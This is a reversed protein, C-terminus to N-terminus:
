LNDDDAPKQEWFPRYQGPIGFWSVWSTEVEPTETLDSLVSLPLPRVPARYTPMTVTDLGCGVGLALVTGIQERCRRGQCLGMGARTLRKVQDQVIPGESALRALDHRCTPPPAQLYRPPAIERLDHVSVQECQCVILDNSSRELHANVWAMRIAAVDIAPRPRWRPLEREAKQFGPAGLRRAVAFAARRAEGRAISTDRSKEADTGACDGVAYIAPISTRMDDDLEPVHGGRVPDFVIRCGVADLLEIVPVSGIATVITDCPIEQESRTGMTRVRISAVSGRDSRVGEVVTGTLIPVGREATEAVLDSPGLPVEAVEIIAAVRRGANLMAAAVTLAEAGSGLVVVNRGEFAEYRQLLTEAAACGMVGIADWGPFALAMDRRGSAVIATDFSVFTTTNGESLGAVNGPLWRMAGDNCYLGWVSVGLKVDVGAEFAEEFRRAIQQMLRRRNQVTAGQRGGFFLPVDMGMLAPDLPHEDILLVSLGVSAATIAAEIGAAGGGVVLLQAHSSLQVTKNRVSNGDPQRM